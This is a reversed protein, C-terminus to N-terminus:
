PFGAFTLNRKGSGLTVLHGESLIGGSGPGSTRKRDIVDFGVMTEVSIGDSMGDVVLISMMKLSSVFLRDTFFPKGGFALSESGEKILLTQLKQGLYDILCRSWAWVGSSAPSQATDIALERSAVLLIINKFFELGHILSKRSHLPTEACDLRHRWGLVGTRTKWGGKM